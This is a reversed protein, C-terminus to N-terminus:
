RARNIRIHIANDGASDTKIAEATAEVGAATLADRLELAPREWERIKRESIQIQLGSPLNPTLGQEGSHKSVLLVPLGKWEWGSDTLAKAIEGMLAIAESDPALSLDFPMREFRGLREIMRALHQPSLTRPNKHNEAEAVKKEGAFDNASAPSQRAAAVDRELAASQRRLAVMTEAAKAVEADAMGLEANMKATRTELEVIRARSQERMATWQRERDIGTFAIVGAAVGGVIFAGLLTWSAIDFAAAAAGGAVGPQIGEETM